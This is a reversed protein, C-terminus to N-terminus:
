INVCYRGSFQSKTFISAAQNQMSAGDSGPNPPFGHHGHECLHAMLDSIAARFVSAILLSFIKWFPEWLLGCSFVGVDPLANALLQCLLLFSSPFMSLCFVGLLWALTTSLTQFCGPFDFRFPLSLDGLFAGLSSGFLWALTTRLKRLRLWFCFRSM